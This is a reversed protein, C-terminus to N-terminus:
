LRSLFCTFYSCSRTADRQSESPHLTSQGPVFGFDSEFGASCAMSISMIAPCTSVPRVLSIRCLCSPVERVLCVLGRRRQHCMLM